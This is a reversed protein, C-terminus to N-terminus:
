EFTSEDEMDVPNLAVLAVGLEGLHALLGRLAAQDFHGRIETEGDETHLLDLLEFNVLLHRQLHGRTRICYIPPRGM